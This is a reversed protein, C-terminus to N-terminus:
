GRTLVLASRGVGPVGFASTMKRSSRSRAASMDNRIVAGGKM